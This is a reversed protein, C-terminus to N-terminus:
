VYEWQNTEDSAEQGIEEAETEYNRMVIEKLSVIDWQGAWKGYPKPQGVQDEDGWSGYWQKILTNFHLSM